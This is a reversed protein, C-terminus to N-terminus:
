FQNGLDTTAPSRSEPDAASEQQDLQHQRDQISKPTLMMALARIANYIHGKISDDVPPAHQNLQGQLDPNGPMADGLAQRPAGAANQQPTQYDAM